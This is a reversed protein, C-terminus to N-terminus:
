PLVLAGAQTHTHAHAQSGVGSSFGNLWRQGRGHQCRASLCQPRLMQVRVASVHICFSSQVYGRCPSSSGFSLVRAGPLLHSPSIGSSFFGRCLGRQFNPCLAHPLLLGSFPGFSGRRPCPGCSGAWLRVPPVTAGKRAQFPVTARVHYNLRSSSALRTGHLWVSSFPTIMHCLHSLHVQSSGSGSRVQLKILRKRGHHLVPASQGM